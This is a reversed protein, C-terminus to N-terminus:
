CLLLFLPALIMKDLDPLVKKRELAKLVGRTQEITNGRVKTIQFLGVKSDNLSTKVIIAVDEDDSAQNKDWKCITLPKGSVWTWNGAEKEM